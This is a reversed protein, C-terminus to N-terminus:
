CIQSKRAISFCSSLTLGLRISLRRFILKICLVNGPLFYTVNMHALILIAFFSHSYLVPGMDSYHFPEDSKICPWHCFIKCMRWTRLASKVVVMSIVLLLVM